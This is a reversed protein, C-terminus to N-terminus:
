IAAMSASSHAKHRASASNFTHSSMRTLMGVMPSAVANVISLSIGSSAAISFLEVRGQAPVRGVLRIPDRRRLVYSSLFKEICRSCLHLLHLGIGLMRKITEAVM